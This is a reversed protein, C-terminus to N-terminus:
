QEVVDVAQPGLQVFAATFRGRQALLHGDQGIRRGRRVCHLFPHRLHQPTRDVIRMPDLEARERLGRHGLEDEPEDHREVPADRVGHGREPGALPFFGDNM